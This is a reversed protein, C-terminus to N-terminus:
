SKDGFIGAIATGCFPCQGNKVKDEEVFFGSRRILPKQCHPCFTDESEGWVNGIYIYKLGQEKGLSCAKRLTEVPTADTQTYKYDPHFRSVHWPIEPSVGAIFRAISRLEDEGDNLGPVVLTTVEVWIKLERMLRISDLVPQLRAGCIKKYTEDSFAKLDVNTADLYPQITKLAEATMYGNTVFNNALGAARALKATDYAYEFFITPETYTYSISRCLKKRAEKVINEPSLEYDGSLTKDKKAVQSIQWNQCFPCRFNCGVTAISFSTTGPLFHYLPKKEIPDVHAAIVEGYVHTYLEGGRNERVACVGFKSDAIVCRHACLFCEVRGKDVPQYLMAEKIMIKEAQAGPLVQGRVPLTEAFRV